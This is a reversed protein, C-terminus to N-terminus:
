RTAAKCSSCSSLTSLLRLSAHIRNMTRRANNPNCGIQRYINALAPSREGGFEKRQTQIQHSSVESARLGFALTRKVAQSLDICLQSIGLLQLGRLNHRYSNRVSTPMFTLVQGIPPHSPPPM